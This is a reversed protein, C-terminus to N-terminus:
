ADQLVTRAVEVLGALRQDEPMLNEGIWLGIAFDGSLVWLRNEDTVYADEGVGSVPESGSQYAKFAFAEKVEIELDGGSADKVQAVCVTATTSPEGIEVADSFMADLDVGALAACVEGAYALQEEVSVSGAAVGSPTYGGDGDEDETPEAQSTSTEAASAVPDVGDDEGGGCAALGIVLVAITAARCARFM